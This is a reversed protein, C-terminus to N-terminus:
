CKLVQFFFLHMSGVEAPNVFRLGPDYASITKVEEESSDFSCCDLNQVIRDHNNSKQIITVGKQTAWRLLIQAPAKNAVAVIKPDEILPPISKDM